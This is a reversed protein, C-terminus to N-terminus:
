LAPKRRAASSRRRLIDVGILGFLASGGWFASPLPAASANSRSFDAKFALEGSFSFSDWARSTWQSTDTGNNEFIFSSGAIPHLNSEYGWTSSGQGQNGKSTSAFLAYQTGATLQIGGTNFMLTQFGSQSNVTQLAGQWLNPGSAEAGDWAYVEGQLNFSHGSSNNIYFTFSQLVDNGDNPATVAEGYTETNLPGFTKVSSTGNWAPTSDYVTDARASTQAFGALLGASALPLAFRITKM